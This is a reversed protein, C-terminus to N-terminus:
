IAGDYLVTRISRGSCNHTVSLEINKTNPTIRWVGWAQVGTDRNQVQNPTDLFDVDLLRKPKVAIDYVSLKDFVCEKRLKNMTGRIYLSNNNREIQEVTFDTVVPNLEQYFTEYGLQYVLWYVALGLIIYNSLKNM